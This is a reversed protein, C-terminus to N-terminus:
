SVRAIAIGAFALGLGIWQRLAIPEHFLTLGLALFIGGSVTVVDVLLLVRRSIM